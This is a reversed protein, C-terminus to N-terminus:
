VNGQMKNGQVEIVYDPPSVRFLAEIERKYTDLVRQRIIKGSPTLEGMDLSPARDALIARRIRQYKVEILPNVRAIEGEFLDRVHPDDTLHAPDVDHDFAWERLNSFDPYILTTVYDKGRGLAIAAAIFRSENALINEVRQPHVKEGSTLKFAGDKRGFIRLGHRTFEGLDGTHFWGDADIAQSSAEEDDLYGLMVNPGKVLVEQDAGVRVAVGPIPFGVFGSRWDRDVRTVTVCPSTETLGWGELVPINNKRYFAEVTAPLPAGATFTLRLRRNFLLEWVESHDRCKTTLLDHIRPVSFFVTPDFVRWNDVLRDLDRGRSDDLCLECGRYITMFREFLGGFSHHWPLYSMFVDADKIDWILSVAKQQSVINRHTLKVGKPPGTTGSTYMILCLDDPKVADLRKQLAADTAGGSQLLSDFDHAGWQRSEDTSDICFYRDVRRHQQKDILELKDADSVVVFRPRSHQLVYAAQPAPYGAFIPVSVAGVSWVALEFLLMEARNESFMAIRNRPEVGLELLHKAIQDVKALLENWSMALEEDGNRYRLMIKDGYKIVRDRLMAGISPEHEGLAIKSTHDEGLRRIGIREDLGLPTTQSYALCSDSLLDKTIKFRDDMPRRAYDDGFPEVGAKRRVLYTAVFYVISTAIEGIHMCGASGGVRHSIENMVGREIRLGVLRQAVEEVADCVPFPVRIMDLKVKTIQEDPVRVVIELKILHDNDLFTGILIVEDGTCEFLEINVNRQAVLKMTDRRSGSLQSAQNKHQIARAMAEQIQRKLSGFIEREPELGANAAYRRLPTLIWEENTFLEVSSLGKELEDRFTKISSTVHGAFKLMTAKHEGFVEEYSVETGYAGVARGVDFVARTISEVFVSHKEDKVLDGMRLDCLAGEEDVVHILGGVNLIISIMAKDFEIRTAPVNQIHRFPYDHDSLVTAIRQQEMEGGGAFILAGKRELVYVADPGTGQRGGAQLAIGRAVRGMIRDTTETDIGPLRGLLKSENLQDAFTDMVQEAVIGNPLVLMIPIHHEVDNADRIKGRSVLNEVFRTVDQTFLDVQGPNCAVLIVEPISNMAEAELLNAFLRRRLAIERIDEQDRLRLVKSEKLRAISDSGSRGIIYEANAHMFFAISLAGAPHVGLHDKKLM